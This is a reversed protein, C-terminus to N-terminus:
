FAPVTDTESNGFYIDDLYYIGNEWQCVRVEKIAAKNVSGWSVSSLPYTIKKWQNQVSKGNSGVEQVDTWFSVSNNSTDTFIVKMSNSGTTDKVYYILHSYGSINKATGSQPVVKICNEDITSGASGNVTMKVCKTGGSNPSDSFIAAAAYTGATFGTGSEFNQYWPSAPAPTPTVAPTPTATTFGPVAATESNGFYIDDLYYIGNNWQCIRVEKIAAKNVSGWSVSNSPYTIKKWQNQVSKGNNGVEQV